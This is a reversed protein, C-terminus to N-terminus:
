SAGGRAVAVDSAVARAAATGVEAARGAAFEHPASAPHAALLQALESRLAEAVADRDRADFGHLVLEEIEVEYRLTM